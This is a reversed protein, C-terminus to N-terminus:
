TLSSQQSLHEHVMVWRDGHQQWISTQRQTMTLVTGDKAIAEIDHSVTTWVLDGARYVQLDDQPVLKLKAVSPFVAKMEAPTRFTHPTVADFFILGAVSAYLAFVKDWNPRDSNPLTSWTQCYDAIIQQFIEVDEPQNIQLQTLSMVIKEV